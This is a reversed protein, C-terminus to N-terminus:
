LSLEQQLIKYKPELGPGYPQCSTCECYEDHDLIHFILRGTGNCDDCPSMDFKDIQTGNCIPCPITGNQGLADPSQDSHRCADGSKLSTKNLKKNSSVQSAYHSNIHPNDTDLIERTCNKCRSDSFLYDVSEECQYCTKNKCEGLCHEELCEIDHEIEISYPQRYTQSLINLKAKTIQLTLTREGIFLFAIGDLQDVAQQQLLTFEQKTLVTQIRRSFFAPIANISDEIQKQPIQM